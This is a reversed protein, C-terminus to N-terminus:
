LLCGPVLGVRRGVSEVWGFVGKGWRGGALEGVKAFCHEMHRLAVRMNVSQGCTVCFIQLNVNNRNSKNTQVPCHFPWHLLLPPLSLVLNGIRKQRVGGM